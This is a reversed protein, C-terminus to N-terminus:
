GNDHVYQVLEGYKIGAGVTITHQSKDLAIIKNLNKSSVLNDRSDAISNFSHRSGLARLKAADEVIRQVAEPTEPYYVEGTSYELNGAWNQIHEKGPRCAAVGSLFSGTM